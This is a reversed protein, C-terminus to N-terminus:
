VAHLSAGPGGAGTKMAGCGLGLAAPSPSGPTSARCPNISGGCWAPAPVTRVRRRGSCRGRRSDRPPRCSSPSGRAYRASRLSGCTRMETSMSSSLVLSTLRPRPWRTCSRSVSLPAGSGRVPLPPLCTCCSAPPAAGPPMSASRAPWVARLCSRPWRRAGSLRRATAAAGALRSARRDAVRFGHPPRAAGRTGETDSADCGGLRVGM